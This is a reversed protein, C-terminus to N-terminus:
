CILHEIKLKLLTNQGRPLKEILEKYIEDAKVASKYREDEKDLITIKDNIKVVRRELYENAFRRSTRESLGTFIRTAHSKDYSM